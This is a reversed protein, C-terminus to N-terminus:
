VSRLDTFMCRASMDLYGESALGTTQGCSILYLGGKEISTIDGKWGNGSVASVVGNFSVELGGMKAFNKKILIAYSHKDNFEFYQTTSSYMGTIAYLKDKLNVFRERNNLNTAGLAVLTTTTLVDAIVPAGHNCQKDWVLMLRHFSNTPTSISAYTCTGLETIANTGDYNIYATYTYPAISMSFLQGRIEVSKISAKRGLREYSNVGQMPSFLLFLTGTADFKLGPKQPGVIKYPASYTDYNKLETRISVAAM